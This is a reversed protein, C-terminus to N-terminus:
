SEIWEKLLARIVESVNTNDAAAKDKAASWLGDEIRVTRATTGWNSMRNRFGGQPDNRRAPRAEPRIQAPTKGTNTPKNAVFETIPTM